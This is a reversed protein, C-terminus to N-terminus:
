VPSSFELRPGPLTCDPRGLGTLRDILPVARGPAPAQAASSVQRQARVNPAGLLSCALDSGGVRREGRRNSAASSPLAHSSTRDRPHAARPGYSGLLELCSVSASAISPGTASRPHDTSSCGDPSSCASCRRNRLRTPRSRPLRQQERYPSTGCWGAPTRRSTSPSSRQSSREIRSDAASTEDGRPSPGACSVQMRGRKTAPPEALAGHPSPAECDNPPPSGAAVGKPRGRRPFGFTEDAGESMRLDHRSIIVRNSSDIVQPGKGGHAPKGDIVM